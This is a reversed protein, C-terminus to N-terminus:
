WSAPFDGPAQRFEAPRDLMAFYRSPAISVVKARPANALLTQYYSAKQTESMAPQKSVAAAADFDPACYPSVKLIPMDAQRLLPRYDTATDEVTCEAIAAVSLSFASLPRTITKVAPFSKRM